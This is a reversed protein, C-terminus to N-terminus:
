LQFYKTIIKTIIIFYSTNEKKKTHLDTYKSIDKLVFCLPSTLNDLPNSSRTSNVHHSLTSEERRNVM